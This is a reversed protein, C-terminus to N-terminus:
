RALCRHYRAARAAGGEPDVPRAPAPGLEALRDAPAPHTSFLGGHGGESQLRSIFSQLAGPDYGAAIAFLAGSKDAEYEATKSYGNKVMTGVVDKVSDDFIGTVKQLQEGHLAAQSASSGLYKFAEILNGKKIAALGHRHTVHGIEHALVAALEDESKTRAIMGRTVFITGGPAAFANVEDTDLVAFRYGIFTRRVQECGTVISLGVKTVYETLVPDDAVKYTPMAVVQAAVARGVYHEESPDLDQFSKRLRNAGRVADGVISGETTSGELANMLGSCAGSLFFAALLGGVSLTGAHWSSRRVASM